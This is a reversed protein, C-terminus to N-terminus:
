YLNDASSLEYAFGITLKVHEVIHDFNLRDLTDAVSHIFGSTYKMESEIIFASPYGNETASVHDSCGYGCSTEHYPIKSYQQIVLKIFENLKVSTYDTILGFHEEEGAETTKSTSGTMDQQLMALVTQGEKFYRSFVDISGLLGGEEASYYHFELTNKPKFTGEKYAEILIRLSELTTVTGSGDDDAGPAKLLNPFLLNTSDQHAGIIVKDKSESGPIKVIISFQDWGEHKVIESTVTPSVPKIIENITEFLWKASEFGTESKYYRTYFSTFTGLNDLLNAKSIKEILKFIEESYELKTPYNYMPIEQKLSVLQKANGLIIEDIFSRSPFGGILGKSIADDVSIQNTVDIFNINNRKYKLKTSEDVIEFNTPSLKIVRQENDSLTNFWNSFPLANAITVLQLLVSIKM